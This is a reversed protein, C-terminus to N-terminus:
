GQLVAAESQACIQNIDVEVDEGLLSDKCHQFSPGATLTDLLYAASVDRETHLRIQRTLDSRSVSSHRM